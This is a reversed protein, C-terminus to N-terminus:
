GDVFPPHTLAQPRLQKHRRAPCRWKWKRVESLKEMLGGWGLSEEGGEGELCSLLDGEELAFREIKGFCSGCYKLSELLAAARASILPDSAGGDLSINNVLQAVENVNESAERLEGKARGVFLKRFQSSPATGSYGGEGDLRKEVQKGVSKMKTLLYASADVNGNELAIQIATKGDFNETTLMDKATEFDESMLMCASFLVNLLEVDGTRALEHTIVTPTDSHQLRPSPLVRLFNKYSHKSALEENSFISKFPATSSDSM